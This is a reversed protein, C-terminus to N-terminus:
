ITLRVRQVGAASLDLWDIRTSCDGLLVDSQYAIRTRKHLWGAVLMRTGRGVFCLLLCVLELIHLQENFFIYMRLTKMDMSEKALWTTMVFSAISSHIWVGGIQGMDKGSLM